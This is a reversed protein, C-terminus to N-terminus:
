LNDISAYFQNRNFASNDLSAYTTNNAIPPLSIPQYNSTLDLYEDERGGEEKVFSQHQNISQTPTEYMNTNRSQQHQKNVNNNTQYVSLETYEENEERADVYSNKMVIFDGPLGAM